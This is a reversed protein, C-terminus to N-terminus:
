INMLTLFTKLLLKLPVHFMNYLTPPEQDTRVVLQVTIGSLVGNPNIIEKNCDEIVRVVIV